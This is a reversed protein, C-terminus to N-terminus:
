GTMATVKKNRHLLEVMRVKSDPSCRAIVLPIEDLQDLEEDSMADFQTSTMVLGDGEGGRKDILGIQRAIAASTSPHDGTVMRVTIGAKHCTAVAEAVGPRPPDKIGVLGVFILESEVEDRPPIEESSPNSCLHPDIGWVDDAAHFEDKYALALVRLGGHAMDDNVQKIRNMTEEDLPLVEGEKSLHSACKPLLREPAGKSFVVHRGEKVDLLIVSMLKIASDFPFEAREMWLPTKKKKDNEKNKMNSDNEGKSTKEPEREKLSAEEESDSNNKEKGKGGDAESKEIVSPYDNTPPNKPPDQHPQGEDADDSEKPPRTLSYKDFGMKRSLTVLAAETATGKFTWTYADDEEGHLLSAGEEIDGVGLQRNEEEAKEIDDEDGIGTGLMGGQGEADGKGNGGENEGDEKDGSFCCLLKRWWGKKKKSNSDEMRKKYIGSANCLSSILLAKKLEGYEPKTDIGDKDVVHTTKKSKKKRKMQTGSDPRSNGEEGEEDTEYELEDDEDSNAGKGEGGEDEFLDEEEEDIEDPDDEGGGEQILFEGFTPDFGEGTVSIFVDSALWMNTAVMKNQTLTGTKDSCIDTVNGLQELAALKRVLAKKKAM